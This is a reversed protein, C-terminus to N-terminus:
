REPHPQKPQLLTARRAHMLIAALDWPVIKSQAALEEPRFLGLGAGESVVLGPVRAEAIPVVFFSVQDLRPEPLPLIVRMETLPELERVEYGIEEWVERRLTEEPTEGTEVTGGFCCWHDPFDIWPFDDRHQMVYRGRETVLIAGTAQKAPPAHAIDPWPPRQERDM